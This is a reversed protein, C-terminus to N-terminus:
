HLQDITGGEQFVKTLSWLMAQRTEQDFDQESHIVKYDGLRVCHDIQKLM